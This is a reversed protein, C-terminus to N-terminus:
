GNMLELVEELIGDVLYLFTQGVLLRSEKTCGVLCLQMMLELRL